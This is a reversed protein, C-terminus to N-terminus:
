LFGVQELFQKFLNPCDAFNDLAEQINTLGAKRLLQLALTRLGAMVQAQAGSKTKVQDEHLTVDRIYNNSEVQWHGRIAQNLDQATPLPQVPDLCVNSVYYTTEVSCIQKALPHTEREMVVLTSLGSLNWRPELHVGQLDFCRATRVELRGHQKERTPVQVVPQGAGWFQLLSLLQPQNAKVQVVYEGGAQNIQALTDPNCHLADLSVRQSELGTAHLLTRVVTVEAAKPGQQPLQAVTQGSTQEVALVVREDPTGRLAKGDVATWDGRESCELRVGFYEEILANVAEWVPLGLLRPLHARSVARATPYGTVEGLWEVRNRMYRQIGSLKARGSLVALLVAAIVFPLPHRKGRNDRQDPLHKLKDMFSELDQAAELDTM